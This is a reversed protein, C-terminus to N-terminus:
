RGSVLGKFLITTEIISASYPFTEGRGRAGEGRMRTAM